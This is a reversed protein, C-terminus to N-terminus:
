QTKWVQDFYFFGTLLYNFGQVKSRVATRYPAFVIPVSPPNALTVQQLRAFLEARKTEDFTSTAEKTLKEAEPNVYNSYLNQDASQSAYLFYAFEDPVPIDSTNADPPYLYSMDEGAVRRTQLTGFDLQQLQVKVGIKEYAQQLIQATQVSPQDTGVINMKLTFGHPVSSESLLTKAKAIDYPYAQAASSWYKLKPATSNGVPALNHFVASRIATQPTAYALAQRVKIENLPKVANNMYVAALSSSPFVKVAVGGHGNVQNIQSYPIEDAIDVSGSQVALARTNDDPIYQFEVKALYPKEHNWYYPNPVLVIKQGKAWEQLKFAGAGVPHTAFGEDGLEKVVKAPAIAAPPISLSYLIAPTPAKLHMIVTNTSPTEVKAIPYLAGYLSKPGSARTLSYQVDAATVPEGNSFRAPRLKMTYTLHDSTITVSEALDPVPEGTSNPAFRFLTDFVNALVQLSGNECSCTFPNLDLAEFSRGMVLTGGRVPTGTSASTAGGSSSSSSSSGCAALLVVAACLVGCVVATRVGNQVRWRRKM